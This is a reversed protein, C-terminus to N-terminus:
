GVDPEALKLFSPNEGDMLSSLFHVSNQNGSQSVKSNWFHQALMVLKGGLEIWDVSDVNIQQLEILWDLAKNSLSDQNSNDKMSSLFQMDRDFQPILKLINALKTQRNELQLITRGLNYTVDALRLPLGLHIACQLAQILRVTAKIYNKKLYAAEGEALYLETRVIRQVIDGSLISPINPLQLWQEAVKCFDKAKDFKGLRAFTRSAVLLWHASRYTMGVRTAFASAALLFDTADELQKRQPSLIYGLDKLKKAIGNRNPLALYFRLQGMRGLLESIGLYIDGGPYSYYTNLDPQPPRGELWGQFKYTELVENFSQTLDGIESIQKRGTILLVISLEAQYLWQIPQLSHLYSKERDLNTINLIDIAERTNGQLMYLRAEELSVLAKVRHVGFKSFSYIYELNSCNKISKDIEHLIFDCETKLSEVNRKDLVAFPNEYIWMVRIKIKLDSVNKIHTYYEKMSERLSPDSCSVERAQAISNFIGDELAEVLSQALALITDKGVWRGSYLYKEKTHHFITNESNLSKKNNKDSYVINSVCDVLDDSFNGLTKIQFQEELSYDTAGLGRVITSSLNGLFTSNSRYEFSIKSSSEHRLRGQVNIETINRQLGRELWKINKDRNRIIKNLEEQLNQPIKQSLSRYEVSNISIGFDFNKFCEPKRLIKFIISQFLAQLESELYNKKDILDNSKTSAIFERELNKREKGTANSKELRQPLWDQVDHPNYGKPEHLQSMRVLSEITEVLSIFHSNKIQSSNLSDVINLIKQKRFDSNIKILESELPLFNFCSLFEEIGREKLDIRSKRVAENPNNKFFQYYKDEETLNAWLYYISYRLVKLNGPKPNALFKNLDKEKSKRWTELSALNLGCLIEKSSCYYEEKLEEILDKFKIWCLKEERNLKELDIKM